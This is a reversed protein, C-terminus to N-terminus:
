ANAVVRVNKHSLPRQEVCYHVDRSVSSGRLLLLLFSRLFFTFVPRFVNQEGCRVVDYYDARQNWHKRLYRACLQTGFRSSYFDLQLKTGRYSTSTGRLPTTLKSPVARRLKSSRRLSNICSSPVSSSMSAERRFQSDLSCRSGNLLM